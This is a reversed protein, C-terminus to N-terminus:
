LKCFVKMFMIWSSVVSVVLKVLIFLQPFSLKLHKLIHTSKLLLSFHLPPLKTLCLFIYTFSTRLLEM